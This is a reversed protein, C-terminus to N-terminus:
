TLWQLVYCWQTCKEMELKGGGRSFADATLDNTMVDTVVTIQEASRLSVKLGLGYGRPLPNHM